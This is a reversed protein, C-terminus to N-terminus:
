QINAQFLVIRVYELRFVTKKRQRACEQICSEIIEDFDARYIEIKTYKFGSQLVYHGKQM